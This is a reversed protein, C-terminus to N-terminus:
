TPISSKFLVFAASRTQASQPHEELQQAAVAMCLDWRHESAADRGVFVPYHEQKPPLVDDETM